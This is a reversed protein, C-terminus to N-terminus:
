VHKEKTNFSIIIRPENEEHMNAYHLINSPFLILSGNEFKPTFVSFNEKHLIPNVFTTGEAKPGDVYLVGSYVSGKHRHIHHSDGKKYLQAWSHALEINLEKLINQIQKKMNDLAPLDLINTQGYSTTQEGDTSFPQNNELFFRLQNINIKTIDIKTKYFNEFPWFSEIM